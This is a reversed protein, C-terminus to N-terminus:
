LDENAQRTERAMLSQIEADSLSQRNLRVDRIEVGSETIALNSAPRADVVSGDEHMVLEGSWEGPRFGTAIWQTLANGQDYRPDYAKEGELQGNIYLRVMGTPYGDWTAAILHWQGKALSIGHKSTGGDLLVYVEPFESTGYFTDFVRRNGGARVAIQRVHRGLHPSYYPAIYIVYRSDDSHTVAAFQGPQEDGFRMWFSITGQNVDLIKQVPYIGGIESIAFSGGREPPAPLRRPIISVAEEATKVPEAPPPNMLQGYLQIVDNVDGLAQIRGKDLWLARSCFTEITAMSHSVIVITTGQNQFEYMRDLCKQQFRSDGVSLVEDVLLIEPRIGSAVAFGLRATMGTSYTRIPAEIFNALEAFDIISDFLEDTTQRSHGLLAMNLYINERGTLEPHFGGGLELLPAVKGRMIVRGQTPYLVRAMVKLLTSKGAGNQGVIGFVEGLKVDFSIEQLAWFDRYVLRRQLKRIAYEKIGSVREQPLRYRVAVSDFQIVSNHNIDSM